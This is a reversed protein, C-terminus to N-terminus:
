QYNASDSIGGQSGRSTLKEADSESHYIGIECLMLRGAPLSEIGVNYREKALRHVKASVLLQVSALVDFYRDLASHSPTGCGLLQTVRRPNALQSCVKSGLLFCSCPILCNYRAAILKEQRQFNGRFCNNNLAM